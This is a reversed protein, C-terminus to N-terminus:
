YYKPMLLLTFFYWRSAISFTDYNQQPRYAMMPTALATNHLFGYALLLISLQAEQPRFFRTAFFAMGAPTSIVHGELRFRSYRREQQRHIDDEALSIMVATALAQRGADYHRPFFDQHAIAVFDYPVRRTTARSSIDDAFITVSRRRYMASPLLISAPEHQEDCKERVRRALRRRAQYGPPTRRPFSTRKDEAAHHHAGPSLARGDYFDASVFSLRRSILERAM